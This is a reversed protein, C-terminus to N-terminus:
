ISHDNTSLIYFLRYEGAIENKIFLLDVHNMRSSVQGDNSKCSLLHDHGVTSQLRIQKM